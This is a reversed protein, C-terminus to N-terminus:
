KQELTKFLAAMEIAAVAADGGKNGFKIGARNMAQEVTEVTLVGNTVPVGTSLAVEDMGRTTELALYDFHVTEGKILCGLCIVADVKRTAILKKAAGPIEFSGPVRAVVINADQVGHRQLAELAGELLKDTILSNFRSVVIGFKLDDTKMIVDVKEM